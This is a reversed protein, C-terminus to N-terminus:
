FLKSFSVNFVVKSLIDEPFVHWEDPEPNNDGKMVLYKETETDVKEIVRHIIIIDEHMYLVIDGVEVDDFDTVKCLQMDKLNLTPVMSESVVSSFRYGFFNVKKYNCGNKFFTVLLSCFLSVILLTFILKLIKKM